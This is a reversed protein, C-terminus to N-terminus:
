GRPLDRAIDPNSHEGLVTEFDELFNL